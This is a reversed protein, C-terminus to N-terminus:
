HVKVFRESITTRGINVLLLYAGAQLHDVALTLNNRGGNVQRTETLMVRGSLDIIAIAVSGAWESELRLNLQENAPNPWTHLGSLEAVEDVSTNLPNMVRITWTNRNGEGMLGDLNGDNDMTISDCFTSTCGGNDTLTLCLLYTGSSAYTHSPFAETSTSGDGFNWLFQYIGTGGSSLNWVWVENPIPEGGGGNPNAASDVWQYAQMAFFGANCTTTDIPMCSCDASWLGMLNSGPLQCATGPQASGGPVGLCDVETNTSDTCNCDVSWISTIWTLGSDPSFTCPTGPLASGGLVNLCDYMTDMVCVCDVSWTGMLGNPTGCPTGPQAPGNLVGECDVAGSDAVCICDTSWTGAEGLFTTCPTGPLDSGGIVGACDTPTNGCNFTVFVGTSDNIAPVQYQVNQSQTIGMCQTTIIFGGGQSAMDLNISFYCQASPLVPVDIDIAPQTGNTSTINVFSNPTCGLITGGVVVHYPQQAYTALGALTAFAFLTQRLMQIM